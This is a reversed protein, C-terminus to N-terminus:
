ITSSKQAARTKGAGDLAQEGHLAQKPLASTLNASHRTPPTESTSRTKLLDPSAHQSITM